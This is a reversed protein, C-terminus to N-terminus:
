EARGVTAISSRPLLFIYDRLIRESELLDADVAPPKEDDLTEDLAAPQASDRAAIAGNTTVGSVSGGKASSIKAVASNTKAVPPPLGPLGAQKLTLEYTKEDPEGSALREKDRAKLRLDAEEKEQLQQKENLSFSKDALKKKYLDIDERIYSFEKDHAVREASRKRLETLYPDVLNLHDYKAKDITDWALPNELASEGIEKSENYLSPLVVDPVVGKLQTSAGSPRYFKKITLKLAGPDTANPSPTRLRLPQVSQVTGKGHTSSDGVILARGYDQLAGAL